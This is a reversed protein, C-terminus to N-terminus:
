GGQEGAMQIGGCPYVAVSVPETRGAELLSRTENWTKCFHINDEEARIYVYDDEKKGLLEIAEKCGECRGKNDMLEQVKELAKDYEQMESHVMAVNNYAYFNKPEKRIIELLIKLAEENKGDQSLKAAQFM